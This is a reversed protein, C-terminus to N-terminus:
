LPWSLERECRSSVSVMEDLVDDKEEEDSARPRSNPPKSGCVEDEEAASAGFVDVM